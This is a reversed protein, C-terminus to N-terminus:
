HVSCQRLDMYSPFCRDYGLHNSNNILRTSATYCYELLKAGSRLGYLRQLLGITDFGIPRFGNPWKMRKNQAAFHNKIVATPPHLSVATECLSNPGHGAWSNKLNFHSGQQAQDFRLIQQHGLISRASLRLLPDNIIGFTCGNIFM